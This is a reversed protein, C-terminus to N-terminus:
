ESMKKVQVPKGKVVKTLFVEKLGGHDTPSYTVKLGGIDFNKLKYFSSRFSERTPEKGALKLAEGLVLASTYGEVTGYSFDTTGAAKMDKQYDKILPISTDSYLPMVQTIYTGEAAAGASEIFNKTGVFSVNLFITKFGKEAAKKVVAACNAYSGTLIVAKPKQQIIEDLGAVVDESNRKMLSNGHLKLNRKALAREIGSRVAVGFADDQALSGIEKIGLDDILHKVMKETEDWYSARIHFIQKNVPQRFAEAGTFMGVLPVEAQSLIPVAAKGTPTGVYGFLTFVKEENILKNTTKIVMEPEYQDDLSILEIKRGNIGGAKNIKAFYAAAGAKMETGLGASPGSLANSMGVKISTKTIGDEAHAPMSFMSGAFGLAITLILSISGTKM